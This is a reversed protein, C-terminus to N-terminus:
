AQRRPKIDHASSFEERVVAQGEPGGFTTMLDELESRLMAPDRLITVHRKSLEDVFLGIPIGAMAAGERLDVEDRQYASVAREIRFERMSRLIWQRMLASESAAHEEVLGALERAEDETLRISKTIYRAQKKV